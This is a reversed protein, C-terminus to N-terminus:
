PPPETEAERAPTPLLAPGFDPAWDPERMKAALGEYQGKRIDPLARRHPASASQEYLYVPIGLDEGVRTGLLRSWQVAEDMSVGELPVLPCVDTAGIRPHVGGQKRMDIRAAAAQISRFAAEVVAEPPGAFTMVTRNAGPSPDIHLLGVGPVSRIAQVLAEIVLPDRGESFNPVCELLPM